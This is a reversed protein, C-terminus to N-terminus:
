ISWARPVRVGIAQCLAVISQRIASGDAAVFRATLMGNWASAGGTVPCSELAARATDLLSETSPAVVLLTAFARGGALTASGETAAGKGGDLFLTDAYALRGGRRVRWRDSIIGSRVTEGHAARGLIVAECLVLCADEAMDVDLRRSLRGGDFLITEQPMWACTAGAALSLITDVRGEGGSSRYIREATQSTVTLAAGAGIEAQVAFRDGGTIGGATNLLVAEPVNTDTQRPFRAKLSGRQYCRDLRSRPGDALFRLGVAGEARELVPPEAHAVGAVAGEFRSVADYM